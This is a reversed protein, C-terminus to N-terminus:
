LGKILGDFGIVLSCGIGNTREIMAISDQDKGRKFSEGRDCVQVIQECNKIILKSSYNM